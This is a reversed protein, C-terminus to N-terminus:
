TRARSERPEGFLYGQGHDVGHDLLEVLQRETELKEVIMTIGSEAMPDKLRALQQAGDSTALLALLTDTEIKIFRFNRRSLSM